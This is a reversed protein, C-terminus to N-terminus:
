RLYKIARELIAIDDKFRGIGTNCSDCIWNRPNGTKHDHDIVVKSTIGAITRKGCVPCEFEVNHPKTKNWEIRVKQNLNIGELIKRCNKCTPRRQVRDGKATQNKDFFTTPLLSHCVNCIKEPYNDGTESADFEKFDSSKLEVLEWVPIFFINAGRSTTSKILGVENKRIKIKPTEIDRLAVACLTKM